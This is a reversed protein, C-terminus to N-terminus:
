RGKLADLTVTETTFMEVGANEMFESFPLWGEESEADGVVLQADLEHWRRIAERVAPTNRFVRLVEGDGYVDVVLLDAPLVFPANM